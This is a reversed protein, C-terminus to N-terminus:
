AFMKGQIFKPDGCSYLFVNVSAYWAVIPLCFVYCIFPIFSIRPNASVFEGAASMIDAGIAINRWNCCLFIVYLLTLIGAVAGGALSYKYDDSDKPFEQMRRLCWGTILAGFIFILFLSVYLIPKTIWRLLFLYILTIVLSAFAMVLILKWTEKIDAMYKTFAGINKNMEDNLPSAMEKITDLSPVCFGMVVDTDDNWGRLEYSVTPYKSNPLYKLDGSGKKPCTDICVSYHMTSPDANVVKPLSVSNTTVTYKRVPMLRTFLKYPYEGECKKGDM